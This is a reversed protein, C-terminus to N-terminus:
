EAHGSTSRSGVVAGCSVRSREMSGVDSRHQRESHVGVCICVDRQRETVQQQLCGVFAYENLSIGRRACRYSCKCGATGGSRQHWRTNCSRATSQESQMQQLSENSSYILFVVLVLLFKTKSEGSIRWDVACHPPQEKATGFRSRNEKDIIPLWWYATILVHMVWSARM